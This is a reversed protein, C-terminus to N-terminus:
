KRYEAAWGFWLCWTLSADHYEHMDYLMWYGVVVPVVPVVTEYREAICTSAPGLTWEIRLQYM